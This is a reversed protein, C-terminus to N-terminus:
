ESLVLDEEGQALNKFCKKMDVIKCVNLAKKLQCLCYKLTKVFKLFYIEGM